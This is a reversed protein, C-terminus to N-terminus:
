DELCYYAKLLKIIRAKDGVKNAYKNIIEIILALTDLIEENSVQKQM